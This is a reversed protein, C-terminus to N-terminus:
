TIIQPKPVLFRYELNTIGNVDLSHMKFGVAVQVDLINKRQGFNQFVEEQLEQM